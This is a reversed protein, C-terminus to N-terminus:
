FCLLAEVYAGFLVRAPTYVEGLDDLAFSPRTFPLGSEAGLALGLASPHWEFRPGFAAAGLWVDSSKPQAVERGEGRIRTAIIRAAPGLRLREAGLGYFARLSLELRSFDGGRQDDSLTQNSGPFYAGQLDLWLRGFGFGGGLSPAFTLKPLVGWSMEGGVLVRATLPTSTVSSGTSGARRGTGADRRSRPTLRAAQAEDRSTKADDGEGPQEDPAVGPKSLQAGPDVALALMLATASAAADCSEASLRRQGEGTDGRTELQVVFRSGQRRVRATAKVSVDAQSGRLMHQARKLVQTETPCDEPASWSLTLQPRAQAASSLLLVVIGM